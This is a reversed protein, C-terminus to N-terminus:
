FANLFGYFYKSIIQYAIITGVIYVLININLFIAMKKGLIKKTLQSYDYINLKRAIDFLINLTWYAALGCVTLMIVAYLFSMRSMQQPISQCGIGLALAVLNFIGSKLSGAQVLSFYGKKPKSTTSVQIPPTHSESGVKEDVTQNRPSKPTESKNFEARIDKDTFLLVSIIDKATLNDNEDDNEEDDIKLNVRDEESQSNSVELHNIKM